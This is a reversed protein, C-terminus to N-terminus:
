LKMVGVIASQMDDRSEEASRELWHDIADPRKWNVGVKAHVAAAYSQHFKLTASAVTGSQKLKISRNNALESTDIPVNTAQYADLVTVAAYVARGAKQDIEAIVKPMNNIFKAKKIAM